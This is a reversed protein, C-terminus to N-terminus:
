APPSPSPAPEPSPTETPLPPLRPCPPVTLRAQRAVAEIQDCIALQLRRSDNRFAVASAADDSQAQALQRTLATLQQTLATNREVDAKSAAVSTRANQVSYFTGVAGLAVALVIGVLLPLMAHRRQAEEIAAIVERETHDYPEGTM